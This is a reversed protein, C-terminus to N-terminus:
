VLPGIGREQFVRRLKAQDRSVYLSRNADLTV